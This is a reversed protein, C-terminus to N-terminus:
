FASRRQTGSPASGAGRRMHKRRTEDGFYAFLGVAAVIFPVCMLFIFAPELTDFWQRLELWM